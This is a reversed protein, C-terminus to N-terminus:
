KPGRVCGGAHTLRETKMDRAPISVLDYFRVARRIGTRDGMGMEQKPSTRMVTTQHQKFSSTARFNKTFRTHDFLEDPDSGRQIVGRQTTTLSIPAARELKAMTLTIPKPKRVGLRDEATALGDFRHGFM